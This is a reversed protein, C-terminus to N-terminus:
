EAKEQTKEETEEEATTQGTLQKILGGDERLAKISEYEEETYEGFYGKDTTLDLYSRETPKVQPIIADLMKIKRMLGEISDIAGFTVRMGSRMVMMFNSPDKVDFEDIELWYDSEYFCKVYEMNTESVEPNKLEIFQAPVANSVSIGKVMPVPIKTVDDTKQLVRGEITTVVFETPTDYILDATSEELVINIKAPFKKKIKANEVYSIEELAKEAKKTNIRFINEGKKIGSTSIADAAAVNLNGTVSIETVGFIPTFLCVCLVVVLGLVCASVIRRARIKNKYKETNTLKKKQM